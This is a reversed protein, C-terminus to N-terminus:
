QYESLEEKNLILIRNNQELVTRDLPRELNFRTEQLKGNSDTYVISIIDKVIELVWGECIFNEIKIWVDDFQKLQSLNTLEKIPKIVDSSVSENKSFIKKLINM